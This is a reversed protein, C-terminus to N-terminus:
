NGNGSVKDSTKALSVVILQAQQSCIAGGCLLILPNKFLIALLVYYSRNTINTVETHTGSHSDSKYVDANLLRSEVPICGASGASLVDESM